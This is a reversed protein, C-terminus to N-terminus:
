AQRARRSFTRAANATNRRQCAERVPTLTPTMDLSEFSRKLSVEAIGVLALRRFNIPAPDAAIFKPQV